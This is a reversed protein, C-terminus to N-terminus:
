PPQNIFAISNGTQLIVVPRLVADTAEVTSIGIVTVMDGAALPFNARVISDAVVKIGSIGIGSDTGSGDDIYICTNFNGDTIWGSMEDGSTVKGATKILMGINSLGNGGTVGPQIGFTGGGLHKHTVTVPRIITIPDTLRTVTANNIVAEGLATSLGSLSVMELVGQVSISEGIAPPNYWLAWDSSVVGMGCSRDKDEIFIRVPHGFTEPIRVCTVVGSQVTVQSGLASEKKIKGLAAPDPHSIELKVSDIANLRETYNDRQEIVCFVTIVDGAPQATVSVQDWQGDTSSAKDQSWILNASLVDTGGTPDIAIACATYEAPNMMDTPNQHTLFRMSARYTEGPTVKVRQYVGGNRNAGIESYAGIFRAGGDAECTVGHWGGSGFPYLGVVGDIPGGAPQGPSFFRPIQGIDYQFLRWPALVPQGTGDEAEFSGNLLEQNLLTTFAVPDSLVIGMPTSSGVQVVYNTGLSLGINVSHSTKPTLDMEFQRFMFDDATGEGFQVFSTSATDTTWEITAGSYTVNTVAPGSTIQVQPATIIAADDFCTANVGGDATQVHRLFVTAHTSEGRAAKVGISIWPGANATYVPASWVITSADPDANLPPQVTDIGIQCFVSNHEENGLLDTEFTHVWVTAYIYDVVPLNNVSQYVTGNRAGGNSEACLFYGGSHPMIRNFKPGSHVAGANAGTSSWGVMNGIEFGSNELLPTVGDHVYTFFSSTESQADPEGARTSLVYYDYKTNPVLDSVALAHLTMLAPNYVQTWEAAGSQRIFLKSDSELPTNWSVTASTGNAATRVFPGSSIRFTDLTTFSQIGSKAINDSENASEVYFRYTTGMLLGEIRVSHSTVLNDDSATNPCTWGTGWRVKSKTPVDTTWTIAAATLEPMVTPLSTTRPSILDVADGPDELDGPASMVSTKWRFYDIYVEGAGLTSNAGFALRSTGGSVAEIDAFYSDNVFLRGGSAGDLTMRIKYFQEPDTPGLYRGNNANWLGRRGDGADYYGIRIEASDGPTDQRMLLIINNMSSSSVFKQRTEITGAYVGPIYYEDLNIQYLSRNADGDIIHLFGNITERTDDNKPETTAIIPYDPLNDGNYVFDWAAAYIATGLAITLAIVIISVRTM